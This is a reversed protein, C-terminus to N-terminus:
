PEIRQKRSNLVDQVNEAVGMIADKVADEFDNEMVERLMAQEQKYKTTWLDEVLFVSSLIQPICVSIGIYAVGEFTTKSTKKGVVVRIGGKFAEKRKGVTRSGDVTSKTTPSTAM